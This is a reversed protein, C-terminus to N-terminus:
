QNQHLREIDRFWVKKKKKILGVTDVNDANEANLYQLSIIENNKTRRLIQNLFSILIYENWKIGFLNKFTIDYIPNIRIYKNKTYIKKKKKKKKKLL